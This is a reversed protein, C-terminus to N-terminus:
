PIHCLKGPVADARSKCYAKPVYCSCAYLPPISLLTLLSLSLSLQSDTANRHTELLGLRVVELIYVTLLPPYSILM